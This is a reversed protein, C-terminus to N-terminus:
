PEESMWDLHEWSPNLTPYQRYLRARRGIPISADKREQLAVALSKKALGVAPNTLSALEAEAEELRGAIMTLRAM